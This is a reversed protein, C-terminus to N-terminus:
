QPKPTAADYIPHFRRIPFFRAPSRDLFMAALRHGYSHVLVARGTPDLWITNGPGSVGVIVHDLVYPNPPIEQVPPLTYNLCTVALHPVMGAMRLLSALLVAKDKCDGTKAKLVQEPSRPIYAEAGIELRRNAINRYVFEAIANLRPMYDDQDGILRTALSRIEESSSLRSTILPSLWSRVEEWTAPTAVMLVPRVWHGPRPTWADAGEPLRWSRITRDGEAVESFELQAGWSKVTLLTQSPSVIEVSLRQTPVDYALPISVFFHGPMLPKGSKDITIEVTDGPIVGSVSLQVTPVVTQASAEKRFIEIAGRVEVVSGDPQRRLLKGRIKLSPAVFPNYTYSVTRFAAAAEQTEVLYLFRIHASYSGDSNLSIKRVHELLRLGSVQMGSGPHPHVHPGVGLHAFAAMAYLWAASIAVVRSVRM